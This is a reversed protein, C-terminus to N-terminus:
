GACVTETNMANALLSTDSSVACICLRTQAKASIHVIDDSGGESSYACDRRLRRQESVCFLILSFAMSTTGSPQKSQM